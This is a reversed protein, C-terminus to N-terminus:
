VCVTIASTHKRKQPLGVFNDFEQELLLSEAWIRGVNTSTPWPKNLNPESKSTNSWVQGIQTSHPGLKVSQPWIESLASWVLSQGFAVIEGSEGLESDAKGLTSWNHRVGDLQPGRIPWHKDASHLTQGCEARVPGNQGLEALNPRM